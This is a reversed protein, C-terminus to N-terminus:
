VFLRRLQDNDGLSVLIDQVKNLHDNCVVEVEREIGVKQIHNGEVVHFEEFQGSCLGFLVFHDL